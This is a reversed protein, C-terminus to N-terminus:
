LGASVGALLSSGVSSWPIFDRCERAIGFLFSLACIQLYKIEKRRAASISLAAGECSVLLSFLLHICPPRHM